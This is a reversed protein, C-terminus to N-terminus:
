GAASGRALGQPLRSNHKFRSARVALAACGRRRAPGARRDDVVGCTM